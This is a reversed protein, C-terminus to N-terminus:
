EIQALKTHLTFNAKFNLYMNIFITKDALIEFYFLLDITNNSTKYNNKNITSCSINKLNWYWDVFVFPIQPKIAIAKLEYASLGTYLGQGM